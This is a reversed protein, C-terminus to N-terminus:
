PKQLLESRSFRSRLSDLLREEEPRIPFCFTERLLAKGTEGYLVFTIRAVQGPGGAVQQAREHPLPRQPAAVLLDCQGGYQLEEWHSGAQARFQAIQSAAMALVTADTVQDRLSLVHMNDDPSNRARGLVLYARAEADANRSSTAHQLADHAAAISRERNSGDYRAIVSESALVFALAADDGIDYAIAKATVALDHARATDHQNCLVIARRAMERVTTPQGSGVNVPLGDLADTTAALLNARAIDDPRVALVYWLFLLRREREALRDAMRRRLEEREELRSIFGACFPGQSPDFGQRSVPLLSASRLDFVDRYRRLTSIVGAPSAFVSGAPKGAPGRTAPSRLLQRHTAALPQADATLRPNRAM